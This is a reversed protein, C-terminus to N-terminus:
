AEVGEAQGAVDGDDKKENQQLWEESEWVIRDALELDGRQGRATPVRVLGIL